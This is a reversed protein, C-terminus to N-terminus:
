EVEVVLRPGLDPDGMCENAWERSGFKVSGRGHDSREVMWGVESKGELLADQVDLTIDFAFILDQWIVPVAPKTLSVEDTYVSAVFTNGPSEGIKAGLWQEELPCERKVNSIDQDHFCTWTVGSGAGKTVKACDKRSSNRNGEVWTTDLMRRAGYHRAEKGGYRPRATLRFELWAATVSQASLGTLPFNVLVKLKGHGNLWKQAWLRNIAGDNRHGHTRSIRADKDAYIVVQGAQSMAPLIVGLLMGVLISKVSLEAM